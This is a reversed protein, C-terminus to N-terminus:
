PGMQLWSRPDLNSFGTTSKFIPISGEEKKEKKESGVGM